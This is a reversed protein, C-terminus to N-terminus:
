AVAQGRSGSRKAGIKLECLTVPDLIGQLRIGSHEHPVQHYNSFLSERVNRVAILLYIYM